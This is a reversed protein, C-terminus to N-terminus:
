SKYPNSKPNGEVGNGDGKLPNMHRMCIQKFFKQEEEGVESEDRKSIKEYAKCVTYNEDDAGIWKWKDVRHQM